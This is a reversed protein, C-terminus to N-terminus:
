PAKVATKMIIPGALEKVSIPNRLVDTIRPLSEATTIMWTTCHISRKRCIGQYALYSIFLCSVHPGITIFRSYAM